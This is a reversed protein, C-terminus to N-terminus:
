SQKDWLTGHTPSHRVPLVDYHCPIHSNRPLDYPNQIYGANRPRTEHVVSVTPQPIENGCLQERSTQMDLHPPRQHHRLPKRQQQPFLYQFQLRIGEHLRCSLIGALRKARKSFFEKFGKEMIYTNQRRNMGCAGSLSYDTNTMRMAPTYSVSPMDHGKKQKRRYWVFLALLVMIILLLIIIGIIAGVSHRESGLAPSIKTYPNLEEMMLAAQDCRIGKFGPSCYCTGTVYDCTANNMCECLQQCGYGFTGPPCKSVSNEQLGLEAPANDQLTTAIRGMKASASTPVTKGMSLLHADKTASRVLFGLSALATDRSTIALSRATFASHARSAATIATSVRLVFEKACPGVTGPHANVPGTRQPAIDAMRAAVPSPATPDGADRPVSAIAISAMLTSGVKSERDANESIHISPCPEDCFDGQWGPSCLCVGDVPDCAAGNACYCTQNCSLGWTGSPCPISCDVGQWGERCFCSGDMPSCAGDNRCNCIMSCNIGYTGAACTISCDEGQFLLFSALNLLLPIRRQELVFVNADRINEFGKNGKYDGCIDRDVHANEQLATVIPEMRAPVSRNAAKETIDWPVPKMATFDQGALKATANGLCLIAASRTQLTALVGKTANSATIDRLVCGSRAIFGKLAQIVCARGMSTTASPGTRVTVNRCANSASPEWRVSRKARVINHRYLFLSPPSKKRAQRRELSNAVGEPLGSIYSLKSELLLGIREVAIYKQAIFLNQFLM